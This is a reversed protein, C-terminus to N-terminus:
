PKIAVELGPLWKKHENTYYLYACSASGTFSGGVEAKLDFGIEKKAGPALSRFYLALRNGNIEYFDFAKRDMLDKLQWPQVTLGGPIGIEAMTMPQGKKGDLNRVTVTLRVTESQKVAKKQLKTELGIQCSDSTAPQASYYQVKLTYPIPNKVQEDFALQFTNKGNHLLKELGESTIPGEQGKQYTLAPLSKGNLMLQISGSESARRAYKAFHTLAKLALVTSQTNGFGGYASKAGMIAKVGNGIAQQPPNASKLSALVALSSTEITLANGTSRTISHDKGLWQGNPQQQALLEKLFGEARADKVNFLANSVLAMQYPDNQAKATLFAKDLAELIEQVYGAESLAYVIYADTVEKSASGFSDLAQDSQRFSGSEDQRSLLWQATREVMSNDVGAFVQQMDKFEMLGYASLAEHAPTGGFWEYGKEATEFSILRQYGKEILSLAKARAEPNNVENEQLYQMVMINPYTSSSTQEFCGYPERLISEIGELLEGMITPYASLSSSLSGTIVQNLEFSGEKKRDTGAVSFAMPFGKPAITIEQEFSDAIGSAKFAFSLTDKGPQNLVEVAILLQTSGEALTMEKLRPQASKLSAPLNVALTGKLKQGTENTLILPIQLVDGMSVEVPMKVSLTLPQQSFIVQDAKGAKGNAGIGEAVIRFSAIEDSLFFRIEGKGNNSTLVSGNWYLTSRFDTRTEPKPQNAYNFVPFVRARYYQSAKQPEAVAQVNKRGGPFEDEAIRIGNEIGQEDPLDLNIVEQNPAEAVMFFVQDEVLQDAENEEAGWDDGGGGWGDFDPAADFKMNEAKMLMGQRLMWEKRLDLQLTEYYSSATFSATLGDKEATFVVPDYLDIGRIEFRGEKGSVAVVASDAKIEIGETPTGNLTIEGHLIAKEAPYSIQFDGKKIEEWRFSRWGQTLLLFDLATKAKTEAQDFYFLPEHVEGTVFPELLMKSLIRGQKDDAFSLLQDNVVAVSLHAPIPIGRHDTTEIAAIVEERPQYHDKNPKISIKLSKDYNVFVMREAREIQNADFLTLHVIGMPWDNTEWSISKGEANTLVSATAIVKEAARAVVTLEENVSAFLRLNLQSETATTLFSFGKALAAPLSIKRDSAFPYTLQAYYSAGATPTLTVSGMGQHFSSFSSIKTGNQDFIHGGIDAPKGFEDTAKFAMITPFGEIWEGGEPFFQLDINDLTVPIRRSISEPQSNHEIKVLLLVDATALDSPLQVSIEAKGQANTTAKNIAVSQGKAMLEYSFPQDAIPQNKLDSVTFDALVTSGKGYSEKQFKLKMSLRPLVTKQLTIEKSFQYTRPENKKWQTYASLTYIGGTLDDSLQFDASANGHHAILQLAKEVSGKPNILDVHIIESEGAEALNNNARVYAEIWITEGPQYYTKDTHLYVTEGRYQMAFQEYQQLLAKLWNATPSFSTAMLSSLYFGAILLTRKHSLAPMFKM